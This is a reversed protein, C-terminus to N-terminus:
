KKGKEEEGQGTGEEGGDEELKEKETKKWIKHDSHRGLIKELAGLDDIVDFVSLM